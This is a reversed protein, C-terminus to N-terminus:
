ECKSLNNELPHIPTVQSGGNSESNPESDAPDMPSERRLKSEFKALLKGLTRALKYNKTKDEFM